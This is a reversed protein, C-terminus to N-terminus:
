VFFDIAHGSVRGDGPTGLRANDLYAAVAQRGGPSFGQGAAGTHGPYVQVRPAPPGSRSYTADHPLLEGQVASEVPATPTRVALDRRVSAARPPRPRPEGAPLRPRYPLRTIDM